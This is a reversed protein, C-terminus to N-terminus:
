FNFPNAGKENKLNYLDLIDNLLEMPLFKKNNRYNYRLDYISMSTDLIKIKREGHKYYIKTTTDTHEIEFDEVKVEIPGSPSEVSHKKGELAKIKENITM